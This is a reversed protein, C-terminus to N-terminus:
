QCKRHPASPDVHTDVLAVESNHARQTFSILSFCDTDLRRARAHAHAHTEAFGLIGGTTLIPTISQVAPAKSDALTSVHGFISPEGSWYLSRHCIASAPDEQHSGNAISETWLATYVSSSKSYYQPPRAARYQACVRARVSIFVQHYQKSVCYLRLSSM